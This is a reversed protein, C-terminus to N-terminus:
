VAEQKTNLLDQVLPTAVMFPGNGKSRVFVHMTSLFLFFGSASVFPKLLFLDAFDSLKKPKKPYPKKIFLSMPSWMILGQSIYTTIVVDLKAM